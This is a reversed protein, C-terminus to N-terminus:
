LTRYHIERPREEFKRQCDICRSAAPNADIRAKGIAEGCDICTGYNGESLRLLAAEVERFETVDRSIEALDIDSLLDAVAADATDAVRGALDIYKETDYKGLERAIDARLDASRQLLRARADGAPGHSTM